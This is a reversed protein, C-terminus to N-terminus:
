PLPEAIVEIDLHHTSGPVDIQGLAVPKGPTLNAVGELVSQRIVPEEVGMITRSEGVGSAEVKNKLQLNDGVQTLTAEINMGVDLYTFQTQSGTTGSQSYSGTAVPVKSGQKMTTRQGAVVDISFHQLGTRKGADSDVFTYTLKYARHAIDLTHILAEIRAMEESYTSVTIANTSTVLFVKTSPDAMNRVATLIDNADNSGSTNKLFITKTQSHIRSCDSMLPRTPMRICDATHLEAEAAQEAKFSDPTFHPKEDEAPKDQAHLALSFTSLAVLTLLTRRNSQM